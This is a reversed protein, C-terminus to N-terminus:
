IILSVLSPVVLRSLILAVGRSLATDFSTFRKLSVTRKDVLSKQGLSGLQRPSSHPPGPNVSVVTMRFARM